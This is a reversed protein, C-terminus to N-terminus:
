SRPTEGALYRAVTRRDLGLQGAAKLRSGSRRVAVKVYLRMLEEATLGCRGLANELETGGSQQADGPTYCGRIVLNRVCQELERVNGPWPYASGLNRVIWEMAEPVFRKAEEEGLLRAATIDVFKELEGPEGGTLDRLPVTRIVDSCLRYYLDHRFVGERCAGALDRNTAAIIKGAFEREANDGLRQFRRTQLVRLLKVQVEANIEGIEDLLVADSPDCAELYGIRDALAGTYAGKRHGFLESELMTQPLASLHVPRFCDPYATRFKRSKADFPIYQSLAIARAVLEKGTGSEGTILTNIEQMRDYLARHYRYIDVTFLSQWIGARLKGAELTGGIIFDFIHHFARHIQFYIAFTREPDYSCRLRRGPRSLFHDFDAAFKEYCDFRTEEPNRLMQGTMEARYKEFLHYIVVPEAIDRARADLEVGPADARRRLELAWHEVLRGLEAVAERTGRLGDHMNWVRREPAPPRGLIIEELELREPTFPNTYNLKGIARLLPAEAETYLKM